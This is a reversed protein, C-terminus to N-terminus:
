VEGEDYVKEGVMSITGEIRSGPEVELVKTNIKGIFVSTSRLILTDTCNSTGTIKGLVDVHASFVDGEVQSEAGFVIKGKCTINGEIRGDFRFDEEAHIDGMIVTKSTLMNHANLATTEDKKGM